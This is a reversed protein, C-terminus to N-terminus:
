DGPRASTSRWKTRWSRSARTSTSTTPSSSSARASSRRASGRTSSRRDRMRRGRRIPSSRRWDRTNAPASTPSTAGNRGRRRTSTSISPCRSHRAMRRGLARAAEVCQTWRRAPSRCSRASTWRAWARTRARTSRCTSSSARRRDRGRFAAEGVADLAGVFTYVTRNTDAGPDVDLLRVGNVGPYLGRSRM